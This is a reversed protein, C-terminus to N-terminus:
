LLKLQDAPVITIKEIRGRICETKEFARTTFRIAIVGNSDRSLVYFVKYWDLEYSPPREGKITKEGKGSGPIGAGRINNALVKFM